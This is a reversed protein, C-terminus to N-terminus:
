QQMVPVLQALKPHLITMAVDLTAVKARHRHALEVLWADTVQRHGTLGTSSVEQYSFGDNWYVHRPHTAIEALAKWAAAASQDEALMMHLRLLAGQTIACTAFKEHATAAFWRHARAHHEHTDLRLAVLVNSDLLWTM